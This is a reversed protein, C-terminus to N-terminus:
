RGKLPFLNDEDDDNNDNDDKTRLGCLPKIFWHIDHISIDWTSLQESSCRIIEEKKGSGEKLLIQQKTFRNFAEM